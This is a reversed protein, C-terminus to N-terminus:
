RASLTIGVREAASQLRVLAVDLDFDLVASNVGAWADGFAQRFAEAHEAMLDAAASDDDALLTALESSLRALEENTMAVSPAEAASADDTAGDIATDGASVQPSFATPTLWRLLATMLDDGGTTTALCDVFGAALFDDKDQLSAAASMAVISLGEFRADQHIAKAAAAGDMVPLEMAMLVLDFPASESALVRDVAVRGNEALSVDFGASSLSDGIRDRIVDDALAVLIRSGRVATLAIQRDLDDDDITGAVSMGLQVTFWFTSGKGLESEVGVTGGMLEVFKKTNSLGLGTGGYRRTSSGDVQSFGQFLRGQQENSLGIGTDRVACYLLVGQANREKVRVNVEIGGVETFKIANSTYNALAQSIRLSDGILYRPVDEDVAISFTLGKAAVNERVQNEAIDLLVDLSFPEHELPMQGGDLRSFDLINNIIGLLHQGSNHIKSVYSKQRSNLESKLVLHAMGIIANLPTRIEHSMNALFDSKAKAADEAAERATQIAAEAAARESIDYLWTVVHRGGFVNEFSTTLLVTIAKGDGRVMPAVYNDVKGDRKLADFYAVRDEPSRWYRNLKHGIPADEPIGMLSSLRRSRYVSEGGETSISIGVPCLELIVRFRQENERMEDELRKRKTIEFVWSLLMRQGNQEIWQTNFLVWILHGDAHRISAEFDTVSGQVILLDSFKAYEAPDSWFDAIKRTLMQEPTLGLMDTLRRNAFIQTGAEDVMTVAAPSGDLISLMRSQSERMVASLRKRESIDGIVTILAPGPEVGVLRQVSVSAWFLSGDKRSFEWEFEFHNSREVEPKAYNVMSMFDAVNRFLVTVSAGCLEDVAWGTLRAAEPNVRLITNELQYIIGLPANDFIASQEAALSEIKGQQAALATAQERTETLLLGADNNREIVEMCLALLPLVADVLMREDSTLSRLSMLELVGVLDTSNVVPFLRLEAALGESLGSRVRMYSDSVQTLCMPRRDQACQGLLGEGLRIQAPSSTDAVRGYGACLVLSNSDLDSRYLSGQGIPLYASLGVLLKKALEEFSGAAQLKPGLETLFAARTIQASLEKNSSDLDDIVKGLPGSVDRGLRHSIYFGLVFPLLFIAGLILVIWTSWASMESAPAYAVLRLEQNGLTIPSSRAIWTRSDLPSIVKFDKTASEASDHAIALASAVLPLLTDSPAQLMADKLADGVLGSDRPLGILKGDATLLAVKGNIGYQLESTFKSLSSLLIDFAVVKKQGTTADRMHVSATIGPEQTTKFIYPATWFVQGELAATAGEFWPRTRPDYDTVKWEDGIATRVDKWTWWHHRNGQAPIDTLRNRWGDDTRLLMISRGSETSLHASSILPHMEIIPMMLRNFSVPEDIRLVDGGVWSAAILLEQEIQAQIEQVKVELRAIDQNRVTAAANSLQPALSFYLSVGVAAAVAIVLLAVMPGLRDLWRRLRFILDQSSEEAVPLPDSASM